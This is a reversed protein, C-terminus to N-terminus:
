QTAEHDRDLLEKTYHFWYHFRMTYPHKLNSASLRFVRRCLDPDSRLKVQLAGWDSRKGREIIDDIAMLSYDSNNLHRHRM